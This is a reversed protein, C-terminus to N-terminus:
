GVEELSLVHNYGAVRTLRMNIVTYIDLDNGENCYCYFHCEIYKVEQCGHERHRELEVRLKIPSIWGGELIKAPEMQVVEMDGM